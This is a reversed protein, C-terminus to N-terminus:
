SAVLRMQDQNINKLKSNLYVHTNIYAVQMHYALKEFPVRTHLYVRTVICISVYLVRTAICMTMYAVWFGYYFYVLSTHPFHM